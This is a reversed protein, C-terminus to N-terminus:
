CPVFQPLTIVEDVKEFAVQVPMGVRVEEPACGRVNALVRPGEHLEVLAVVYPVQDQLAVHTPHDVVTFTYVAGRGGVPAWDLETAHCRPCRHLPPHWLRRCRVCRQVVLRGERAAEWYPRTLETMGPVIRAM